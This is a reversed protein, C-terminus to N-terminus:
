PAGQAMVPATREGGGVRVPLVSMALGKWHLRREVQYATENHLIRQTWSERKWILKGAFFVVRQYQRSLEICLRTAEHVPDLGEATRCSSNWGLSRALAVYRQVSTEVAQRQADVEATGKFTGSDHVAVSVFILNNFYSPFTRQISLMSHVGLGGFQGVLLVATPMKPDPEGGGGEGGSFSGLDADLLALQRAVARYHAKVALCVGVLAATVVITLWAGQRFKLVVTFALIGVCMVLGVLHVL